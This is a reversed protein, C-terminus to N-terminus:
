GVKRGLGQDKAITSRQLAYNKAVMPYDDPLGWKTRYAEPTMGYKQNLHRKLIKMRRGDELCIIYDDTVTDKIEILPVPTEAPEPGLNRLSRYVDEILKPIAEPSVETKSLYVKLLDLTENLM